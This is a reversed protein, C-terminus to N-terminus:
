CSRAPAIGTIAALDFVAYSTGNRGPTRLVVRGNDGSVIEGCGSDSSTQVRLLNPTAKEATPALWAVGVAIAVSVAGAVALVRAWWLATAVREVEERSWRRLTEATILMRRGPSGAGARVALLTGVLFLGLAAALLLAVAWRYGIALDTVNDRGKVVLVAGLLTTVSALGTRWSDAQKRAADLTHFKLENAREDWRQLDISM